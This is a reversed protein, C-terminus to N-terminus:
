KRAGFLTTGLRIMNAGQAVADPWDASMGMSLCDLTAQERYAQRLEEALQAMSRYGDAPNTAPNLMTMFGRLKLNPLALIAEVLNAAQNPPVGAKNPDADINVQILTNLPEANGSRHDSLRRAVKDRDVTHVWSFHEAIARTKNSQIRGIYHWTIPLDTLAQMKDLSEALYNEGFDRVGAQWAARITDASQTKSAAVVTVSQQADELAAVVQTLNLNLFNREEM